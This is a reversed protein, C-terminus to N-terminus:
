QPQVPSTQAPDPLVAAGVNSGGGRAIDLTALSGARAVPIRAAANAIAALDKDTENVVASLEALATETNCIGREHGAFTRAALMVEDHGGARTEGRAVVGASVIAHQARLALEKKIADAM